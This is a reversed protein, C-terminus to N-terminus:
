VVLATHEEDEGGLLSIVPIWHKRYERIAQLTSRNFELVAVVTQRNGTSRFGVLNVLFRLQLARLIWVPEWEVVAKKLRCALGWEVLGAVFEGEVSIAGGNAGDFAPAICQRTLWYANPEWVRLQGLDSSADFDLKAEVLWTLRQYGAVQGDRVCIQHIVDPHFCALEFNAAHVPDDGRPGAAFVERQLRHVQEMLASHRMADQGSVVYIM